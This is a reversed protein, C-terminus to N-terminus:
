FLPEVSPQPRGALAYVTSIVANGPSIVFSCKWEDRIVKVHLPIPQGPTLESFMVPMHFGCTERLYRTQRDGSFVVAEDVTARSHPNSERTRILTLLLADWKLVDCIRKVAVARSTKFTAALDVSLQPLQSSEKGAAALHVREAPMLLEAALAHAIREEADSGGFSHNGAGRYRHESQSWGEPFLLQRVIFHGIEHALTFRLRSRNGRTPTIILVGGSPQYVIKGEAGVLNLEQDDDIFRVKRALLKTKAAELRDGELHGLVLEIARSCALAVSSQGTAELFSTTLVCRIM